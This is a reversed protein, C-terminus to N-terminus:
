EVIFLEMILEADMKGSKISLDMQYLKKILEELEKESYKSCAERLKKVRYPHMKLDVAIDKDLKNSLISVQLMSRVQSAILGILSLVEINLVKLDQYMSMAKKRDKKLIADVFEYLYDDSDNINRYVVEIVDEKTIRKEEEKLLKLKDLENSISSLNSNTRDILELIADQDMTYEELNDKIYSIPNISIEITEFEKKIKKTIKKRQDLSESVLVLVKDPNPHEIYKEFRPQDDKLSKEINTLVVIKNPELFNYTDLDIIVDNLSIDNLDIYEIPYNDKNLSELKKKILFHNSNEILILNKM